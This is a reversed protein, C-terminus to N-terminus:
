RRSCDSVKETGTGYQEKLSDVMRCYNCVGENDFSVGSLSSDFICRPCLKVNEQILNRGEIINNM